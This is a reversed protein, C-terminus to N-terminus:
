RQQGARGNTGKMTNDQEKVQQHCLPPTLLTKKLAFSRGVCMSLIYLFEAMALLPPYNSLKISMCNIQLTVHQVIKIMLKSDFMSTFIKFNELVKSLRSIKIYEKWM